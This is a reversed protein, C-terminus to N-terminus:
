LPTLQHYKVLNQPVSLRMLDEPSEINQSINVIRYDPHGCNTRKNVIEGIGKGIRLPNNWAFWNCITDSDHEM